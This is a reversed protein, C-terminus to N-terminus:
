GPAAEPELEAATDGAHGQGRRGPPPTAALVLAGVVVAGAGSLARECAALTAGTTLVDDVLLVPQAALRDRASGRVAIQGALNAGRGRAGLGVQDRGGWRRRLAPLASPRAPALAQAVVGGLRGVLDEGRRRRAAASSPAPVVLLHASPGWGRLAPAVERASRALAEALHRGVDARGRDKWAVIVERVPGVCSASAWVPLPASGDMRDLRPASAECRRPPGRLLAVCAACVAVDFAGCGACAVPLVLRGVEAMRALVGGARSPPADTTRPEAM